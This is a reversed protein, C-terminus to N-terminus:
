NNQLFKFIYPVVNLINVKKVFRSDFRGGDIEDFNRKRVFRSWDNGHGIEDFSRKSNIRIPFTPFNMNDIDHKLYKFIFKNLKEGSCTSVNIILNCLHSFLILVFDTM